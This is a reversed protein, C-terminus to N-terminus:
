PFTAFRYVSTNASMPMQSDWPLIAAVAGIPVREVAEDHTLTVM